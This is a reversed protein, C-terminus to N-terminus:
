RTSRSKLQCPASIKVMLDCEAKVCGDELFDEIEKELFYLQDLMERADERHKDDLGDGLDRTHSVVLVAPIRKAKSIM